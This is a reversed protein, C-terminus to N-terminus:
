EGRIRAASLPGTLTGADKPGGPSPLGSLNGGTGDSRVLLVRPLTKREACGKKGPFGGGPRDGPLKQSARGWLRHSVVPKASGRRGCDPVRRLVGTGSGADAGVCGARSGHFYIKGTGGFTGRRLRTEAVSAFVAERGGPLFRGPCPRPSPHSGTFSAAAPSLGPGPGASGRDKGANGRGM